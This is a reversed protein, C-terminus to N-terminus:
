GCEGERCPILPHRDGLRVAEWFRRLPEWLPMAIVRELEDPDTVWERKFPDFNEFPTGYSRALIPSWGIILDTEFGFHEELFEIVELAAKFSLGRLNLGVAGEEPNLATMTNYLYRMVLDTLDWVSGRSVHGLVIHDERLCMSERGDILFYRTCPTLIIHGYVAGDEVLHKLHTRAKSACRTASNVRCLVRGFEQITLLPNLGIATFLVVDYVDRPIPRVDRAANPRYGSPNELAIKLAELHDAFRDGLWYDSLLHVSIYVRTYNQYFLLKIGNGSKRFGDLLFEYGTAIPYRYTILTNPIAPCLSRLWHHNPVYRRNFSRAEESSLKHLKLLTSTTFPGGKVLTIFSGLGLAHPARAAFCVMLKRRSLLKLYKHVVPRPVGSKEAIDQERIPAPSTAIADLVKLLKPSRRILKVLQGCTSPCEVIGEPSKLRGKM